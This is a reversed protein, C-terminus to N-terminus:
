VGMQEALDTLDTAVIDFSPDPILDVTGNPGRELPRPVFATRMGTAQAGRVDGLHAAVMMVENTELGLLRAATQYVEPEPKYNKALEASLVCDWPLASHKAMNVLLSVNGNSLAAIIYRKKLRALGRITDAWPMLRHWVRNMHDLQTETLGEIGFQVLLGDLIMRHLADIHMWPLEGRRVRDMAPRYGDRWADAFEEWDVPRAIDAQWVQGEQIITTRWDVVTGFIDFTLAKVSDSLPNPM